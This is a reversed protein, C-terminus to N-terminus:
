EIDSKVDDLDNKQLKTSAINDNITIISSIPLENDSFSFDFFNCNLSHFEFYLIQM